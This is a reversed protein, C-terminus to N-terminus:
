KIINQNQPEGGSPKVIVDPIKFSIMRKIKIKVSENPLFFKREM